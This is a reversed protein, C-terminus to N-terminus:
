ANNSEKKKVVLSAVVSLFIASGILLLSVEVPIKYFESLLMKVGIFGLIFSLGYHLYHFLPLVGAAAFYLSRLGLIAFINSTYVVFPDKSIALIAPVSDIAFMIDSSEVFVLALFMPTAYLRGGEKIFFRGDGNHPKLPILRKAIRYVLTQEPHFEKEETTLLKIASVILIVGFIYVVWHFHKILELGAFIFIARFVIAGLVGWFLVKHRYEEPVKFYSFILIFVFINDLSLAKELLYGTFYEVARDYGRDFYVFVGFALGLAIWFASLLLAEKLSIKHPNRHFVFLDLFLATFVVAGFILWELEM